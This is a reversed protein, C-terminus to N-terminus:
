GALLRRCPGLGVPAVAAPQGPQVPGALQDGDADGGRALLRDPVQAPGPGIQDIVAAPGAPPQLGEEQPVAPDIAGPSTPGALVLAPQAGVLEVVLAQLGGEAVVPRHHGATVGLDRGDLGVEGVRGGLRREGVRHRAQGGGAPNALQPRQRHGGLDAVPHRKAWGAANMAKVPSTGQSRDEASLTQRPWM